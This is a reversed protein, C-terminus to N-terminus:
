TCTTAFRLTSRPIMKRARDIEFQIPVSGKVSNTVKSATTTVYSSADRGFIFGVALATALGGIVIKKLM